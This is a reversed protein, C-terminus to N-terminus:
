TAVTHRRMDKNAPTPPPQEAEDDDNSSSSSDDDDDKDAMENRLNKIFDPLIGFTALPHNGKLPGSERPEKAVPTPGDDAACVAVTVRRRTPAAFWPDELAKPAKLRNVLKKALLKETLSVLGKFQPTMLEFAPKRSRTARVMDEMSSCGELFLGGTHKDNDPIKDTMIQFIVVGLSFVDGGPFWKKTELTEPPIYGPTGGWGSEKSGMAKSIGFDILVVEPAEYDKHKIMMNPEKIDCHIMAQQHMFELARFCQKFIKKWWEEDMKIGQEMARPKLTEFDGGHYVENVMYYFKDDQFIEFTSAIRKCDLLKMAEFEEKLDDLDLDRMKTKPYCKLCREEGKRDTCLNVTGQNGKGMERVFTFGAEAMSKTPVGWKGKVGHVRKWYEWLHFKLLKYVENVELAGSGDFDFRLYDTMLDGFSDGPLGLQQIVKTRVKGLGKVDISKQTAAVSEFIEVVLVKLSNRDHL